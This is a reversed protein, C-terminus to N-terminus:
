LFSFVLQFSEQSNQPFEELFKDFMEKEEEFNFSTIEESLESTEPQKVEQEESNLKISKFPPPIEDISPHSDINGKLYNIM